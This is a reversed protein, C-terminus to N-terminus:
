RVSYREAYMYTTVLSNDCVRHEAKGFGHMSAIECSPELIGLEEAIHWTNKNAKKKVELAQKSWSLTCTIHVGFYKQSIVGEFPTSNLVYTFPYRQRKLTISMKYCKSPSFSVTFPALPQYVGM